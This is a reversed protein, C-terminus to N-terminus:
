FCEIEWERDFYVIYLIYYDIKNFLHISRFDVIIIIIAM